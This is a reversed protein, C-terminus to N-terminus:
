SPPRLSQMALLNGCLGTSQTQLNPWLQWHPSWAQGPVPHPCLNKNGWFSELHNYPITLNSFWQGLNERTFGEEPSPKDSFSKNNVHSNGGLPSTETVKLFDQWMVSCDLTESTCALEQAGEVAEPSHTNGLAVRGEDLRKPVQTKRWSSAYSVIVVDPLPPKRVEPHGIRDFTQAWGM